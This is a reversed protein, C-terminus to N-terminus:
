EIIFQELNSDNSLIEELEKNELAIPSNIKSIAELDLEEILDYQNINSHYTIYNELINQDAKKSNITFTYLLPIVLGMVIVAAVMMLMTKENRFFPIVRIEREESLQQLMKASFDDFYYEPTIFGTEIKPTNELKFEKM